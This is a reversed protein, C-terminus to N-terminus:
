KYEVSFNGSNNSLFEKLAKNTKSSKKVYFKVTGSFANWGIETIDDPLDVKELSTDAFAGSGIKKLTSPLKIEKLGSNYFARDGISEVGDPITIKTLM